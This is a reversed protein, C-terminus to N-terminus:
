LSLKKIFANRYGLEKVKSLDARADDMSEYEGYLYRYYGDKSLEIRLKHLKSFINFNVPAKGSMIQITYVPVISRRRIIVQRYNRDLVEKCLKQAEEMSGATRWTYKYLNDPALYVSIKDLNRFYSLDMPKSLAFIQVTYSVPTGPPISSIDNSENVVEDIYSASAHIRSAVPAESLIKVHGENASSSTQIRETEPLPKETIKFVEREAEQSEAAPFEDDHASALQDSKYIMNVHIIMENETPDKDISIEKNFIEYDPASITLLYKGPTM